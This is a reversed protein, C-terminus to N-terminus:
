LIILVQLNQFQSLARLQQYMSFLARELELKPELELKIFIM